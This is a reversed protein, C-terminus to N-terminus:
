SSAAAALAVGARDFRYLCTKAGTTGIDYAVVFLEDGKM